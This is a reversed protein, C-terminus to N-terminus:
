PMRRSGTWRRVVRVPLTLLRGLARGRSPRAGRALRGMEEDSGLYLYSRILFGIRGPWGDPMMLARFLLKQAPRSLTARSPVYGFLNKEAMRSLRGAAFAPPNDRKLGAIVEDPVPADIEKLMGLSFALHTGSGASEATAQLVQWDVGGQRVVERADCLQGIKGIFAGGFLDMSLHFLTDTPTFARSGDGITVARAAMAAMTAMFGSPEPLPLAITRHPEIKAGLDERALPAIHHHHARYHEKSWIVDVSSYGLPELLRVVRDLESEPFLLDFDGMMRLRGDGYHTLALATEKLLIPKIGEAGLVRRIEELLATMRRNRAAIGRARRALVLDLGQPLRADLALRALNHQVALTINGRAAAQVFAIWEMSGSALGTAEADEAASMKPSACLVLLRGEPTSPTVRHRSGASDDRLTGLFWAPVAARAQLSRLLDAEFGGYLANGALYDWQTDPGLDALRAALPAPELGKNIWFQWLLRDEVLADGVAHRATM